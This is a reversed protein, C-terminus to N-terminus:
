IADCDPRDVRWDRSVWEWPSTWEVSESAFVWRSRLHDNTVKVEVVREPISFTSKGRFGIDEELKRALPAEGQVCGLPLRGPLPVTLPIRCYVVCPDYCGEWTGVM